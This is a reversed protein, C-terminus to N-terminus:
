RRGKNKDHRRQLATATISLFLLYIGASVVFEVDGLTRKLPYYAAALAFLGVLYIIRAIM